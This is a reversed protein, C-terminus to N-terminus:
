AEVVATCVAVLDDVFAQHDLDPREDADLARAREAVTGTLVMIMAVVRHRRRVADLDPRSQELEDLIRALATTTTTDSEVRWAAFRGRLQAVIRVYSRGGPEVLSQAYPVVLCGVLERVAPAGDLEARRRGREDDIPGGRRALIATVLGERSGFHYTVASANRPGAAEVIERTTVAAVGLRAMRSEAVDLLVDRTTTM